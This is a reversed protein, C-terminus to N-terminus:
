ANAAGNDSRPGQFWFWVIRRPRYGEARLRDAARGALVTLVVWSLPWVLAIVSWVVQQVVPLELGSSLLGAAAVSAVLILAALASVLVGPASVWRSGILPFLFALAALISVGFCKMGLDLRTAPSM